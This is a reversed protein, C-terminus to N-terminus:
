YTEAAAPLEALEPETGGHRLARAYLGLAPLLFLAGGALAAPIGFGNGVAGLVPGGTAQGVANAQGSISLVTARVSSDTIQRNLWANYLPSLLRRALLAALFAAVVFLLFVPGAARVVGYAGIIALPLLVMQVWRPVVVPAVAPQQPPPPVNEPLAPEEVDPGTDQAM